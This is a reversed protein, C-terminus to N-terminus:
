SENVRHSLLATLKKWVFKPTVQRFCPPTLTGQDEFTCTRSSCPACAFKPSINLAQAGQTGVKEPDTPGYLAVVPKGMAAALHAFGTDVSVIATANHLVAAVKNISLRALVKVNECVAAIREARLKQEESGWPLQVEFGDSVVLEALQQWYTEPWHKTDWTTGHLFVLYKNIDASPQIVQQWNIGYNLEDNPVQYNFVLAFLQRLRDIAHANKSVNVKKNYFISAVGERCSYRDYGARSKARALRGLSASKILGQADLVLDYKQARVQKVAHLVQKLKRKRLAVPIVAEVAPHWQAIEAFGEEVLWTFKIDPIAKQADTIAPLTHIIDGMSSLKVLLVRM